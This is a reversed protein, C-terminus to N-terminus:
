GALGHILLVILCLASCVATPVGLPGSGIIAALTALLTSALVGAFILALTSDSPQFRGGALDRFMTAVIIAVAFNSAAFGFATVRNRWKPTALRPDSQFWRVWVGIIYISLAVPLLAGFIMPGLDATRTFGFTSVDPVIYSFLPTM